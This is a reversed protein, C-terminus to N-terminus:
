LDLLGQDRALAVAETRNHANLKELIHNVHSKVTGVTIVLKGAIEQNSVGRAMLFLVERERDSLPNIIQGTTGQNPRTAAQTPGRVQSGGTQRPSVGAIEALIRGVYERCIGRNAAAKLLRILESGQDFTRFYGEDQAIGLGRELASWCRQRDGESEAAQAELLSLEIVRHALGHISALDIQRELYALADRARGAGVAVRVRDMYALYYAEAAGLPGMGPLPGSGDLPTDFSRTWRDAEKRLAPNAPTGRMAHTIRLGQACFDIDPWFEELRSLYNLAETPRGQFEHLRFLGVCAAMQYYPNMGWGILELGHLLTREAEELQNRELLICGLAIDLCGAAPFEQDPYVLIEDLAIRGQRCISEARRLEGQEYVLRSQHFVAEVFGLYNRCAISLEKAREMAQFGANADLLAMHAYGMTLVVASRAPDDESLLDLAKQALFLQRRPDATPEQTTAELYARTTAAQGMLIRGIQKNEMGDAAQEIQRLREEIRPRNRRRHGILLANCQFLCITPHVLMVNEPFAASWEYVTSVEGRMMLSAGHQEVLAAAYAWDRTQLAHRVAERLFGERSYWEGAARHLAPVSEPRTKNLRAQLFDRFLHHYRYWCAEDDLAVVFLNEQDLRALIVASGSPYGMVADCLPATLRDLISTSLLFSQVERSQRVFVEELLYEMLFRHSGSFSAIVREKDSRGSLSLAALQLGAIWGETREALMAIWEAPLELRMVEQLFRATEDKTFGLGDARVELLQGGARLRALPLPPDSRSGLALRLSEPRHELLYAMATHIVPSGIMQYDDLILLCDRESLILSNILAPLIRQLEFEPSSRLLQALQSLESRPGLAQILSAVLYSGFLVPSDDSPDLAYWAVATGKQRESRAWEALLTTKGYGAPACVLILGTGSEPMFRGVLRPRPLIRLRAAPLSIKTFLLPSAPTDMSAASEVGACGRLPKDPIRRGGIYFDM